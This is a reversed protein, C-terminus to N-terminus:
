SGLKRLAEKAQNIGNELEAKVVQVRPANGGKTSAPKLKKAAEVAAAQDSKKTKGCM